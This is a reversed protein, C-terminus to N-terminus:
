EHRLAEIPDLQAAKNAPYYGFFIGVAAASTFAMLISSPVVVTPMDGLLGFLWSGCIGTLVGILGGLLSLLLAEALFQFRIDNPSAGVSQRIGIERTRETVSVLMINMIGIGGVILSVSAVWALLSRFAETTSEQTEIVDQQTSVTWDPADLTVDHRRALLLDIQTIVKESDAGDELEVTIMRVRDGRMRAFMDNMYKEFVVTIPVYIRSDFDTTGVLGKEELVGVVTLKVNGVTILQGLPPEEGFLEVAITAGLVAVKAKREVDEQNIYRGTQIEMDRVSPFDATTGLIEVSDIVVSGVKVQENSNQEVVVGAVGTIEEAIATADDFVLGGVNGGDAQPAFGGRQMSSQLYILNSGLGTIQEEIAAETGASISIMIIVASVGIIVGLMTLLSRLKNSMLGKWAIQFVKHINM